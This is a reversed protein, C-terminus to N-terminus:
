ELEMHFYYALLVMGKREYFRHADGRKVNSTLRLHDCNCERAHRVLWDFLAGGYGRSREDGSTVLDEIELYRGNALWESVRFGAVAKVEGEVLYALQLGTESALRRVLPVFEVAVVHPRLEAMVGHCAQIEEDTEAIRITPNMPGVPRANEAQRPASHMYLLLPDAVVHASM